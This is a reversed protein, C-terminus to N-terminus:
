ALEIDLINGGKREGVSIVKVTIPLDGIRYLAMIKEIITISSTTVTGMDTDLAAYVGGGKEPSSARLRIGSITIIDGLLDKTSLSQHKAFIEERSTAQAMRESIESRLEDKTQVLEDWGQPIIRTNNRWEEAPDVEVPVVASEGDEWGDTATAIKTM